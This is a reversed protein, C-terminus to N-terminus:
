EPDPSPPPAPPTQLLAWEAYTQPWGVSFDYAYPNDPQTAIMMQRHYEAKGFIAQDQGAISQFIASALAPTMPVFTGQMTKWMIGPPMNVGFMVLAIQQIRSTDNSHFWNDGVKVGGAARADRSAQIRRWMETRAVDIAAADIIEKAPLQPGSDVVINEYVSPDGVIHAQVTPFKASLIEMYNSIIM